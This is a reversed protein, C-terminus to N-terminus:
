GDSLIENIEEDSMGRAKLKEVVSAIGEARGEAIGEARASNIANAEDRIAKERTFALQRMKEDANLERLIVIPKCM